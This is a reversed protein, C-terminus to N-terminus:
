HYRTQNDAGTNIPASRNRTKLSNYTFKWKNPTKKTEFWKGKNYNWYHRGGIEM